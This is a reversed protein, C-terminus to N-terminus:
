GLRQVDAGSAAKDLVMSGLCVLKMLVYRDCIGMWQLEWLGPIYAWHCERPVCFCPILFLGHPDKTREGYSGLM